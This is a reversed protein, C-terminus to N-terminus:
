TAVVKLTRMLYIVSPTPITLHSPIALADLPNAM